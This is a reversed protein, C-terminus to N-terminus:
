ICYHLPLYLTHPPHPIELGVPTVQKQRSFLSSNKQKTEKKHPKKQQQEPTVLFDEM